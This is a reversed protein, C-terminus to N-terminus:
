ICRPRVCCERMSANVVFWSSPERLKLYACVTGEEHGREGGGVCIQICYVSKNDLAAVMSLM